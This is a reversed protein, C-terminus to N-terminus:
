LYCLFIFILYIKTIEGPYFVGSYFSSYIKKPYLMGSYIDHKIGYQKLPGLVYKEISPLTFKLSRTLGFFCIAVRIKKIFNHYSAIKPIYKFKDAHKKFIKSIFRYDGASRQEAWRINGILSRPVIFQSTDIKEEEIKGGKLIRGEQIRNQDWTYVCEPDLTPLLKWFETHFINDDDM